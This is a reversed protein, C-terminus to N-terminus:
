EETTATLTPAIGDTNYVRNTKEYVNDKIIFEKIQHDFGNTEIALLKKLDDWIEADPISFCSDGRFWHEVTTKKINLKDAIEKIPITKHKKLIDKLGNINVEHKRIKVKQTIHEIKVKPQRNGGTMSDLCPSYETYERPERKNSFKDDIIKVEYNCRSAKLYPSLDIMDQLKLELPIKKPFEFSLNDIDKRISVIFIRERNQPIGYDKANLVDFYNNFGLRDLYLIIEELYKGDNINLLGKVNEAIMWKPKKEETIRMSDFFLNGKKHEKGNRLGAISFPQCPFGYTMLDFNLLKKENVKTIDWLNKNEDENHILCYAQSAYKDIECYNILKFKINLNVLAKEFAGIGSFLSLLKIVNKM